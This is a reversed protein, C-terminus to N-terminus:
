DPDVLKDVEKSLFIYLDERVPNRKGAGLENLVNYLAIVKGETLGQISYERNKMKVLKM